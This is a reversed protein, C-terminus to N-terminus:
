ISQAENNIQAGTLGYRRERKNYSELAKLFESSDFEPWPTETIYIESYAVQWLLFNSLRFEGSTRIILDPDPMLATDLYQTLKDETIEKEGSDILKQVARLIEQRSGYSLAFTLQLGTNYATLRITEELAKRPGDPLRSRDGIAFLRVNNKMLTPRERVLYKELLRMLVGVEQTPRGWNEESFAYLTLYSLGLNGALQVIERVRQTGRIHGFLRPRRRSQAWRGNGDMIIAVHKPTRM